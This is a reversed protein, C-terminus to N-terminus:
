IAQLDRTLLAPDDSKSIARYNRAIIKMAQEVDAIKEEARLPASALTAALCVSVMLTLLKAM